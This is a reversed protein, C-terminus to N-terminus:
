AADEEELKSSNLMAAALAAKLDISEGCTEQPSKVDFGLDVFALVISWLAEIFAQKQDDPIDSDVIHPLWDQWDFAVQSTAHHTATQPTPITM